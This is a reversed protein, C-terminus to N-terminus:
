VSVALNGCLRRRAVSGRLGKPVGEDEVTKRRPRV